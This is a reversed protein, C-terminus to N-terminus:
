VVVNNRCYKWMAIGKSKYLTLVLPIIRCPLLVSLSLSFSFVWCEKEKPYVLLM